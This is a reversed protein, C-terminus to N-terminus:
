SATHLRQNPQHLLELPGGSSIPEYIFTNWIRHEFLLSPFLKLKAPIIHKKKYENSRKPQLHSPRGTVQHNIPQKKGGYHRGDKHLHFIRTNTVFCWYSFWYFYINQNNILQLFKTNVPTHFRDLNQGTLYFFM